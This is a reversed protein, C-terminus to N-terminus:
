GFLGLAALASAPEKKGKRRPKEAGITGDICAQLRARKADMVAPKVLGYAKMLAPYTPAKPGNPGLYAEVGEAIAESTLKVGKERAYAVIFGRAVARLLATDTESEVSDDFELDALEQREEDTLKEPSLVEKLAISQVESKVNTAADRVAQRVGYAFLYAAGQPSLEALRISGADSPYVGAALADIVEQSVADQHTPAKNM